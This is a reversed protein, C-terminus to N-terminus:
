DARTAKNASPRGPLWTLLIWCALALAAIIGAMVLLSVQFAALYATTGTALVDFVVQPDFTAANGTRVYQQLISMAELKEVPAAGDRALGSHLLPTFMGYLVSSSLAFGLAFGFQGFATRSSGMAGVLAPPAKAVFLHATPAQTMMLGTGAALLPLVFWGYPTAPGSFAVAAMAAAMAALGGPVLLRLSVGRAVLQGAWGAAVICALVFPLLGLSVQFPSFRYVYQWLQSLQLSISSGAMDFGVGALAGVMLEHDTFSRIPFAPNAIRWEWLAFAALLVVGSVLPVLVRVSGWGASAANSVGYLTCVLGAAVLLLGIFDMRGSTEERAEPVSRLCLLLAVICLAPGLLYAVRWSMNALYGGVVAMLVIGVTQLALWRAVTKALDPPSPAIAKLLAFSLGFSAAFGVGSLARGLDFMLPSAASATVAGGAMAVVLGAMMIKKRGLRDGLSGTALISAAICLTAMSAAMARQAGTMALADGALVVAVNHVAPDVYMPLSAFVLAVLPAFGVHPGDSVKMKTGSM